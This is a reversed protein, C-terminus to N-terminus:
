VARTGETNAVSRLSRVTASVPYGAVEIKTGPEILDRQLYGLAIARREVPSLVASTLWGVKKGERLLEARAPPLADGLLFGTLKRNVHGRYTARAIVEQGIYCGKNYHIARELNAELPLTHEDMDAGFRPTGAEVRLIEAAEFGVWRAPATKDLREALGSAAVTPMWLSFGGDGWTEDRLIWLPTGSFSQRVAARPAEPVASTSLASQLVDIARPGVLALMEYDGSVDSLTVDESIVYRELFERLVSGRGPEVQILFDDTRRLIRADSVMGGKPTLVAAYVTDDIILSKVDNSVMGQLFEVRDEGALRVLDRFSLDVLGAASRAATYEEAVSGYRVVM